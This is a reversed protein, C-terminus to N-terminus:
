RAREQASMPVSRSCYASSIPISRRIEVQTTANDEKSKKFFWRAPHMKTLEKGGVFVTVDATVMEKQLDETQRLGDLGTAPVPGALHQSRVALRRAEGLSLRLEDAM